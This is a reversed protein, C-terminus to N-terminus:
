SQEGEQRGCHTKSMVGSAHGGLVYHSVERDQDCYQVSLESSGSM